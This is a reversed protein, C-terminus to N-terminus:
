SVWGLIIADSLQSGRYVQPSGPSSLFKSLKCDEYDWSRILFLKTYTRMLVALSAFALCLTLTLIVLGNINAPDHFNSRAGPPPPGAAGNLLAELQQSALQAM